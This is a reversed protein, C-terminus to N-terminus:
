TAKTIVGASLCSPRTTTSGPHMRPSHSGLSAPAWFSTLPHTGRAATIIRMFHGFPTLRYNNRFPLPRVAALLISALFGIVCNETHHKPLRDADTSFTQGIPAGRIAPSSGFDTLLLVFDFAIIWHNRACPLPFMRSHMESLCFFLSDTGASCHSSSGRLRQALHPAHQSGSTSRERRPLSSRKRAIMPLLLHRPTHPIHPRGHVCRRTIAGTTTKTCPLPSGWALSIDVSVRGM